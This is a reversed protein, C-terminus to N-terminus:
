EEEDSFVYNPQNHQDEAKITHTQMMITNKEFIAVKFTEESTYFVNKICGQLVIKSILQVNWKDEQNLDFVLVATATQLYIHM